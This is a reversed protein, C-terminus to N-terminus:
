LKIVMVDNDDDGKWDGQASLAMSYLGSGLMHCLTHTYKGKM